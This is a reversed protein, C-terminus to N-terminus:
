LGRCRCAPVVALGLDAMAVVLRCGECPYCGLHSVLSFCTCCPAVATLAGDNYWTTRNAAWRETMLSRWRHLSYLCPLLVPEKQFFPRQLASCGKFYQRPAHMSTNPAHLTIIHYAMNRKYVVFAVCPIYHFTDLYHPATHRIQKTTTGGKTVHAWLGVASIALWQWKMDKQAQQKEEWGYKNQWRFTTHSPCLSWGSVTVKEM